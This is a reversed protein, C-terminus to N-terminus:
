SGSRAASKPVLNNLGRLNKLGITGLGEVCPFWHPEVRAWGLRYTWVVSQRASGAPAAWPDVGEFGQLGGIVRGAWEVRGKEDWIRYMTVQLLLTQLAAEILCLPLPNTM